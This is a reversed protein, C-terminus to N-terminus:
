AKRTKAYHVKAFKRIKESGSVQQGTALHSAMGVKSRRAWKCAHRLCFIKGSATIWTARAGCHHPKPHHCSPIIAECARPDGGELSLEVYKAQQASNM